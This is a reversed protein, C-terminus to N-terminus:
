GRPVDTETEALKPVCKLGAAFMPQGVQLEKVFATPCLPHVISAEPNGVLLAGQVIEFPPLIHSDFGGPVAHAAGWVPKFGASGVLFEYEGMGITGSIPRNLLWRKASQPVCRYQERLCWAEGAM